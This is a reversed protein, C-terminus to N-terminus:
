RRISVYLIFWPPIHLPSTTGTTHLQLHDPQNRILRLFMRTRYPPPCSTLTICASAHQCSCSAHRICCMLVADKSEGPTIHITFYTGDLLGNCSYGCPAFQHSDIRSGPILKDIGALQTSEIGTRSGLSSDPTGTDADDRKYFTKMIAPDLNFRHSMHPPSEDADHSLWYPRVLSTCSLMVCTHQAVSMVVEM